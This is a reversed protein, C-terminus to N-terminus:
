CEGFFVTSNLFMLINISSTISGAKEVHAQEIDETTLELLKKRLIKITDTKTNSTRQQVFMKEKEGKNYM